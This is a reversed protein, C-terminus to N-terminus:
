RDTPFLRKDQLKALAERIDQEAESRGKKENRAEIYDAIQGGLKEVDREPIDQAAALGPTASFLALILPLM